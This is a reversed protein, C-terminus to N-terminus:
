IILYILMTIDIFYYNFFLKGRKGPIPTNKNIVYVADNSESLGNTGPNSEAIQEGYRNKVNKAPRKLRLKETLIDVDSITYKCQSFKQPNTSTYGGELTSQCHTEM